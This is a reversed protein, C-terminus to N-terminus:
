RSTRPDERPPTRDVRFGNKWVAAIRHLAAVDRTPDGDVLLLDARMGPAIRGRDGLRFLRAPLSTAARLAEVPTLGARVFWGLEIALAAGHATGPNPADTGAVIPVGARHLRGVSAVATDLIHRESPGRTAATLTEIQTPSLFPRIAPDEAARRGDGTASAGAIASFTPIVFLGRARAARAFAEDAPADGFMHALGDAGRELATRSDALTSTHVIARLGQAHAAAIIRGLQDPSFTEFRPQGTAASRGVDYFIKIHDSGEAARAAVFAAADADSTLTPFADPPAGKAIIGQPMTVGIGASWIDARQTRGLAEREARLSARVERPAMSFMEIEATVGFRLAEEASGPYGHVHADILGPLLTKGAGDIVERGRAALSRGVRAIRGNEVLVDTRETVREGDFLRVNRVLFSAEAAGAPRPPETPACSAALALCVFSALLRLM